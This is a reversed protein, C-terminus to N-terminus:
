VAQRHAIRRSLFDDQNQASGILRNRNGADTSCNGSDNETLRVTPSTHANLSDCIKKKSIETKNTYQKSIFNVAKCTLPWFEPQQLLIATDRDTEIKFSVFSLLSLDQDRKTLRIVRTNELNDVGNKQMYSVVDDTTIHPKFKSLYLECRASDNLITATARQTNVLTDLDDLANIVQNELFQTSSGSTLGCNVSEDTQHHIDNSNSDALVDTAGDNSSTDLIIQEIGPYRISQVYTEKAM